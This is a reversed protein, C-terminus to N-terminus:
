APWLDKVVERFLATLQEPTEYFGRKIWEDLLGFLGYSYFRAEYCEVPDDGYQPKMIQYFADYVCAQLEAQYILSLMDRVSANFTFFTDANDVTYRHCEAIGHDAAWRYWLVVLKYTLAETKTAFNRFWTSRNVGATRAIENVTIKAFTKEKMLYLLADAKCEKLFSTTKPSAGM